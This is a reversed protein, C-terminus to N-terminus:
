SPKGGSRLDLIFELLLENVKEAADRQVWHSGESLYEVRANPVLSAPPEAMTKPLHLDREGWLVLVPAEIPRRKAKRRAFAQAAASRLAARYYNLAGRLAGEQSMAGVYREIDEKPVGDKALSRRLFAYDDKALLREPIGPLQFFFMYWSKKLQEFHRLREFLVTPYPSNMIVLRQVMEPYAAAFEWAVAGGWDHGVVIARDAGLARILGRVDSTLHSIEYDSVRKPKDSLNYGRMDPAVVHFGADALAHIQRHWAWWFEPFGHLLVVLPRRRAGRQGSLPVGAEVVHLKLEGVDIKRHVVGNLTLTPKEIQM